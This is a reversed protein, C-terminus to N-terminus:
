AAMWFDLAFGILTVLLIGTIVMRALHTEIREEAAEILSTYRDELDYVCCWCLRVGGATEWGTIVQGETDFGCHTCFEGEVDLERGGRIDALLYSARSIALQYRQTNFM